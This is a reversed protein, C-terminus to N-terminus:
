KVFRGVCDLECGVDCCILGAPCGATEFEGEKGCLNDVEEPCEAPRM